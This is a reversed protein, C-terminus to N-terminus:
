VIFNNATLVSAQVNSLTIEMEVTSTDGDTDVWVKTDNGSQFYSASNAHVVGDDFVGLPQGGSNDLDSFDLKDGTQGATFDTIVDGTDKTDLFVFSNSGQGGSLTDKGYGGTIIDNGQDGVIIDKGSGGYLIDDGESGGDIRDNGSGGYIEDNGQGGEIIDDGALGYVVDIGRKADITDAGTTGRIINDRNLEDPSLSSYLIGGAFDDHDNPDSGLNDGPDVIIPPDYTGTINVTVSTETGDASVM